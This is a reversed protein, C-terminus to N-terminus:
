RRTPTELTGRTSGPAFENRQNRNNAGPNGFQSQFGSSFTSGSSAASGGLGRSGSLGEGSPASLGGRRNADLPSSDSASSGFAGSERSLGFSRIQLPSSGSASNASRSGADESPGARYNFSDRLATEKQDPSTLQGRNDTEKLTATLSQSHGQAEKGGAPEAEPREEPTSRVTNPGARTGATARSTTIRTPTNPAKSRDSRDPSFWIEGVTREKEISDNRVGLETGEDDKEQLEGQKLILWNKKELDSNKAKKEERRNRTSVGDPRSVMDPRHLNVLRPARVAVSAKEKSLSDQLDPAV